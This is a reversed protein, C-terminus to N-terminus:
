AVATAVESMIMDLMELKRELPGFTFDPVIFEDLGASAYDAIAATVEEVGGAITPMGSAKWRPDTPQSPKNTSLQILAQASRRITSPDRGAEHCLRDLIASKHRFTDPMGWANWEDAHRAAIRLASQEGKVGVLLPIPNPPLPSVVSGELTFHTGGHVVVEGSLLRRIVLCGEDLRRLRDGVVPYPLGNALHENAQWGAGVGLVFRGGSLQAVNAAMKALLVPHRYTLPCVLTGIRIRPVLAAVATATTWCELVPADLPERSPMLHDSIWVGDWGGAEAHRCVRLLDVLPQQNIPWVSFRM